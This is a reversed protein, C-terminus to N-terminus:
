HGEEDDGIASAKASSANPWKPMLRVPKKSLTSHVLTRAYAPKKSKPSTVLGVNAAIQKNMLGTVVWGMIERERATLTEFRSKLEAAGTESKRRGRDKELALQVADLM